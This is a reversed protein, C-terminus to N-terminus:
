SVVMITFNTKSKYFPLFLILLFCFKEYIIKFDYWIDAPVSLLSFKTKRDMEIAIENVENVHPLLDLFDQQAKIEVLFKSSLCNQLRYKLLTFLILLWFRAVFKTRGARKNSNNSETDM